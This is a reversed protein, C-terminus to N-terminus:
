SRLARLANALVKECQRRYGHALQQNQTTAQVESTEDQVPDAELLRQLDYELKMSLADKVRAVLTLQMTEDRDGDASADKSSEEQDEEASLSRALDEVLAPEFHSFSSLEQLQFQNPLQPRSGAVLSSSDVFPRLSILFDKPTGTEETEQKKRLHVYDNHLDQTEPLTFGYGLLLESNTKMGYNNFVQAGPQYADECILTCGAPHTNLNWSYRVTISHNPIDFLPQLVSFDDIACGLPLIKRIDQKTSDELILSPRFSRSTFICFAWNYLVKTYDQWNPFGEEKLVKRAQKFERKVNAQIEEIAVGANTGELFYADDESWFAPLAWSNIHEPRPLSAIYAHWFSDDGRLYQQILYFRGIVHPPLSSKFRTPFAATRGERTSSASSFPGDVLANLYSLTVSFPCHIADFGPQLPAESHKVRLSFKTVDDHYVELSPHLRAGHHQAWEVLRKFRREDTEKM